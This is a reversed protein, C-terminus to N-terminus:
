HGGSTRCADDSARVWHIKGRGQAQLFCNAQSFHGCGIFPLPPRRASLPSPHNAKLILHPQGQAQILPEFKQAHGGWLMFVKPAADGALARLVSHTWETWGFRAHAAPAGLEVTLISNLLLVGQRAWESLDGTSPHALSLDRALEAYINRLSPALRVGKPVSFALGHAQGPGHYPDQGLIVVRVRDFPTLALAYLTHQPVIHAGADARAKLASKLARAEATAEFQQWLGRWSADLGTADPWQWM